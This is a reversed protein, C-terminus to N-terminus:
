WKNGFIYAIVQSAILLILSENLGYGTEMLERKVDSDTENQLQNQQKLKATRYCFWYVKIMYFYSCATFVYIMVMFNLLLLVM